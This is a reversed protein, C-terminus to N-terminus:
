GFDLISQGRKGLIGWPNVLNPDTVDAVGPQDAVLNHQIFSNAPAPASAACVIGPWATMLLM